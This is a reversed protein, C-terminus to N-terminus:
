PRPCFCLGWRHALASRASGPDAIRRAIQRHTRAYDRRYGVNRRLFEVAFGPRELRNLHEITESSRWFSIPM